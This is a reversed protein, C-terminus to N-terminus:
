DCCRTIGCDALDARNGTGTHNASLRAGRCAKATSRWRRLQSAHTREAVSSRVAANRPSSSSREGMGEGVAGTGRAGRAAGGGSGRAATPVLEICSGSSGCEADQPSAPDPTALSGASRLPAASTTAAEADSQLLWQASSTPSLAPGLM